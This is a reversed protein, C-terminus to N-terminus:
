LVPKYQNNRYIGKNKIRNTVSLNNHGYIEHVLMVKREKQIKCGIFKEVQAGNKPGLNNLM